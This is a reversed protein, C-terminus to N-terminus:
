HHGLGYAVYMFGGFSRVALFRVGKSKFRIRFDDEVAFGFLAIDANRRALASFDDSRNVWDTLVRRLRDLFKWWQYLAAFVVFGVALGFWVALHESSAINSSSSAYESGVIGAIAVSAMWLFPKSVGGVASSALSSGNTPTSPELPQKWWTKLVVYAVHLMAGSRRISGYLLVSIRRDRDRSHSLFWPNGPDISAEDMWRRVFPITTFATSESRTEGLDGDTAEGSMEPGGIGSGFLTSRQHSLCLPNENIEYDSIDPIVQQAVLQTEPFACILESIEYQLPIAL